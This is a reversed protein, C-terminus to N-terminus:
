LDERICEMVAHALEERYSDSELRRAQGPNSLFGVEVLCAATNPAHRSLLLVGLDRERVGRNKAGTISALRDVLRRAFRRSRPNAQRAVWGETADVDPHSDGNWHISVFLDADNRRAQGARESLSLNVGADRTLIVRASDGLLGRVRRALDLTLDKELLGNSGVAHNPSSGGVASTGGHGADIVVTRSRNSM